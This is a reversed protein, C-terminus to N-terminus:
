KTIKRDTKAVKLSVKRKEVIGPLESGVPQYIGYIAHRYADCVSLLDRIVRDILLPIGTERMRKRAFLARDFYWDGHKILDPPANREVAKDRLKM